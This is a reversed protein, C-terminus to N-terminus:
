KKILRWILLILVGLAMVFWQLAYAYHKKPAVRVITEPSVSTKVVWPLVKQSLLDGIKKTDLREIIYNNGVKRDLFYGLDVKSM